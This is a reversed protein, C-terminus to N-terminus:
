SEKRIWNLLVSNKQTIQYLVLKLCLMMEAWDADSKGRVENIIIEDKLWSTDFGMWAEWLFNLEGYQVKDGYPPDTFIYDISNSPISKLDTSSETSIIVDLNSTNGYLKNLNRYASKIQSWKRQFTNIQSRECFIPPCYYTGRQYGGGKEHYMQMITATTINAHFVFLLFRKLSDDLKSVKINHLLCALAYLNRKTFLDPLKKIGKHVGRRWCVGWKEQDESVNMMNVTPYWYLIEKNEIELIKGIDYKRFYSRKKPNPDNFSRIDAAPTCGYQCTYHVIAPVAGQRESSTNIKIKYGESLCFPCYDNGILEVIRLCRECQFRQTWGVKDILARGECRDCKTEYLWELEERTQDMLVRIAYEADEINPLMCYFSTIFTASPSIDILIPKRKIALAAVGTMGSGCFPDLVLDGENTFWKIYPIIAEYHKKGKYTHMNFLSDGRSRITQLVKPERSYKDNEPDYPKMHKEVFSRLNPNPGQSYFGENPKAEEWFLGQKEKM